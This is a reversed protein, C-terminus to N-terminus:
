RPQFPQRMKARAVDREAGTGLQYIVGVNYQATADGSRGARLMYQFARGRDRLAGQGSYLRLAFETQASPDGQEASRRFWRAAEERQENERVPFGMSAQKVVLGDEAARRLM